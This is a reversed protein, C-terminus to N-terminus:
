RARSAWNEVLSRPAIVLSPAQVRQKKADRVRQHLLALVQVTKGLGMDDALCAGLGLQGLQGLWAVGEEQYPRLTALFGRSLKLPSPADGGFLLRSLQEFRRDCDQITGQGLAHVVGVQALSFRLAGDKEPTSKLRSLRALWDDPLLGVTGDSLTIFRQDALRKKLAALIEPLDLSQDGFELRGHLDFWDTGSSVRTSAATLRRYRGKEGYVRFGHELLTTIASSFLNKKLKLSGRREAADGPAM